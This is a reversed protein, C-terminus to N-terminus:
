GKKPTWGSHYMFNCYHTGTNCFRTVGDLGMFYCTKCEVSGRCKVTGPVDIMMNTTGCEAGGYYECGYEKCEDM